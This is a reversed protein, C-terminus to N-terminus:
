GPRIQEAKAVAPIPELELSQSEATNVFKVRIAVPADGEIIVEGRGGYPSVSDSDKENCLAALRALAARIVSKPLVVEIRDPTGTGLLVVQCRGERWDLRIEQQRATAMLEDVLGVVGLEPRALAHELRAPLTAPRNM